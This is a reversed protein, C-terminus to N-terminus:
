NDPQTNAAAWSDGKKIFRLKSTHPDGDLTFELNCDYIGPFDGYPKCEKKVVKVEPVHRPGQRMGMFVGMGSNSAESVGESIIQAIVEKSPGSDGCAALPVIFAFALACHRLRGSFYKSKM